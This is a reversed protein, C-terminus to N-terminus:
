EVSRIQAPAVDVDGVRISIVGDELSVSTAVGSTTTGDGVDYTVTKGILAVSESVRSSWAMTGLESALNAVQEVTSFQAMTGMFQPDSTPNMPDQNKLQAVLMKLFDDKGLTDTARSQTTPTPTTTVSTTGNVTSM